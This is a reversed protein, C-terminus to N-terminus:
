TPLDMRMTVVARGKVAEGWRLQVQNGGPGQGPVAIPSIYRQVNAANSVSTEPQAAEVMRIRGGFPIFASADVTWTDANTNQVHQVVVPNSISQAVQNYTNASVRVDRSRTFDLTSHTTDVRDVRDITANFVRFMNNEMCFGNLFHGPGYPKVVVWRFASSVDSAIFINGVINLGGFSFENNFEPAADHENGWEIFCNDIYNGTVVTAVNTQTFVIGALRVGAAMDDGQFFHNSQIMHSTGNMVAFHRFRVVRNNRLKVDNANVNMAITTRNQAPLSQEDSLFQCYDVHMGQCGTGSSSIGRDKPRNFTCNEFRNVSGAAPMMVGSAIGLCNFEIDHIEFRNLLSFGGFDLMYKFRRFSYTRTGAAAFLPESLEIWGAGVNKSRVYVERGVGAGEVLAGIPINAVNTVSTLRTHHTSPTYTGVSTFSESNWATSSVANLSGNRLVRRNAFSTQGSLLSVDVPAALDVRRGSLDFTVHDNFYFLAQLARRFGETDDGFARSYSELDFNRTLVLRNAAPVRVTGVFRIPSSVTLNGQIPYVGTPVLITRGGAAADARQFAAMDNAVGDGLAGHDRVDVVDTLDRLWFSTVDEIVIDDIRVTGGNPGTLDLGFHAFVPLHGWVLDVGPRNGAGIIAQVTVVEGYSSLGVATATQAVSGVNAGAATGAWAAIRVAPLNGSVAKIRVTVRLYMDPRLPTQAFARIRQTATTKMLEFCGGFDQDNGVLAAGAVGTYSADGPRGNASSWNALGAAFPLPMLALGETIAKNM